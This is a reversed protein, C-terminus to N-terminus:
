SADAGKRESARIHFAARVDSSNLYLVMVVCYVMFPYVYLPAWEYYLFLCSALILAQSIMALLWGVRLMFLFCLAALVALVAPPVLFVAEVVAELVGPPPALLDWLGLGRWDVRTVHYAVVGALGLAQVVLLLGTARVPWSRRKERKAKRVAM